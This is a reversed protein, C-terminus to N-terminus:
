ASKHPIHSKNFFCLSFLVTVTCTSVPAHIVDLQLQMGDTDGTSKRTHSTLTPSTPCTQSLPTFCGFTVTM